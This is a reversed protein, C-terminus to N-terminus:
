GSKKKKGLALGVYVACLVLITGSVAMLAQQGKVVGSAVRFGDPGVLTMVLGGALAAAFGLVGNLANNIGIFMQTNTKPAYQFQINLLCIGLASWGAASIVTALPYLWAKNGLTVMSCLIHALGITALMIRTVLQWSTRDAVRGWFRALLSREILTVFAVTSIIGYSIGMDSVVYLNWFPAGIQVGIQYIASLILVPRFKKRRLPMLILMMPKMIREREREPPSKAKILAVTNVTNCAAVFIGLIVFGLAPSGMDKFFDLARGVGLLVVASAALSVAERVGMYKGRIQFPCIGVIWANSPPVIMANLFCSIFYLGTAVVLGWGNRLVMALMYMLAFGYRFIAAGVVVFLKDNKVRRALFVGAIQGLGCLAPFALLLGNLAVPFGVLNLYGSLYSGGVVSAVLMSVVGDIIFLRRSKEYDPLNAAIEQM